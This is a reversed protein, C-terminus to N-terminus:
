GALADDVSEFIGFLKTLKTTELLQRVSPTPSALRIQGSHHRCKIHGSIIAGLGLSCIFDMESLDLVVVPIHEAVLEEIAARLQEAEAMSAAGSVKMVAVDGQRSSELELPKDSPPNM